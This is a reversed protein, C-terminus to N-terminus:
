DRPEARKYKEQLQLNGFADSKVTYWNIDDKLSIYYSLDNDSTIETVGFIDKDSYKKKLKGLINPPLDKEFYYRTTELLNGDEDYKARVNISNQWFDAQYKNEYDHWVVKEAYTFTEKFAKLVKESPIEGYHNAAKGAIGAFLLVAFIIRKM